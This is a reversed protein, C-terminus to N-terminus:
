GSILSSTLTSLLLWGSSTPTSPSAKAQSSLAPESRGSRKQNEGLGESSPNRSTVSGAWPATYCHTHGGTAVLGEVSRGEDGPAFLSALISHEIGPETSSPLAGLAHSALDLQVKFIVLNLKM